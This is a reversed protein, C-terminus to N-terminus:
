QHEANDWSYSIFVRSAPETRPGAESPSTSPSASPIVQRCGEETILLAAADAISTGDPLFQGDVKGELQLVELAILWDSKRGDRTPQCCNKFNTFIYKAHSCNVCNKWFAGPLTRM